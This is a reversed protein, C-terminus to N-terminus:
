LTVEEGIQKGVCDAMLQKLSQGDPLTFEQAADSWDLKFSKV